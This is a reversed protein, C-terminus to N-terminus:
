EEEFPKEINKGLHEEIIVAGGPHEKKFAKVDYVVGQWLVVEKQEKSWLEYVQEESEFETM